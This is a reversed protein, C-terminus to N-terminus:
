LRVRKNKIFYKLDMYNLFKVLLFNIKRRVWNILLLRMFNLIFLINLFRFMLVIIFKIAFYVSFFNMFIM